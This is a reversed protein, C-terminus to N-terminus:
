RHFIFYTDPVYDPVFIMRHVFEEFLLVDGMEWTSISELYADDGDPKFFFMMGAHPILMSQADQVDVDIINSASDDLLKKFENYRRSAFIENAGVLYKGLQERPTPPRVLGSEENPVHVSEHEFNIDVRLFRPEIFLGRQTASDIPHVHLNTASVGSGTLAKTIGDVLDNAVHPSCRPLTINIRSQALM